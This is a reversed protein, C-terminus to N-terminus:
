PMKDILEEFGELWLCLAPLQGHLMTDVRPSTAVAKPCEAPGPGAPLSHRM